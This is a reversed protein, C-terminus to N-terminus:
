LASLGEELVEFAAGLVGEPDRKFADLHKAEPVIRHRAGAAGALALTDVAPIGPDDASSIFCAPCRLRAAHRKLDLFRYAPRLAHRYFRYFHRREPATRDAWSILHAPVEEFIAARVLPFRTVAPLGWYGGGSVGWFFLPLGEALSDGHRLASAVDFDHFRPSRRQSRGFGPFNFTLVHFGADSLAPLRRRRYFYAQGGAVWPHAMVVLGRPHTRSSSYFISDLELGSEELVLRRWPSLAPPPDKARHAPVRPALAGLLRHGLREFLRSPREVGLRRNQRRRSPTLLDITPSM